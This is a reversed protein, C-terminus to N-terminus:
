SIVEDNESKDDEALGLYARPDVRGAMGGSMDLPLALVELHLHHGTTAGSNGLAMLPTGREVSQGPTVWVSGPVGHAYGSQIPPDMDPHEIRVCTGAASGMVPDDAGEGAHVVVGSAVARIVAGYEGALDLGTHGDLGAKRYADRTRPDDWTQLVHLPGDLPSRYTDM